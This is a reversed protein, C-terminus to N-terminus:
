DILKSSNQKAQMWELPHKNKKHSYMNGSSNMEIGCFDCSYLKQGTHSARHEQLSRNLKFLKKCIECEFTEGHVRKKHMSLSKRSPYVKHCIDCSEEKSQHQQMIHKRLDRKRKIWTHCIDCQAGDERKLETHVVKHSNFAGQTKFEKGCVDCMLQKKGSHMEAIHAKLRYTNIISKKCIPCEAQEHYRHHARLMKETHFSRTCKKCKFTKEESSIHKFSYHVDMTRKNPFGKGCGDCKYPKLHTNIHYLMQHRHIFNKNCCQLTARTKHIEKAHINLQKLNEFSEPCTNCNLTFFEKILRDENSAEVLEDEISLPLEEKIENKIKEATLPDECMEVEVFTTGSNDNDSLEEKKVVPYFETLLSESCIGSRIQLILQEQNCRVTEIFTYFKNIMECCEPCVESPLQESDVFTFNSVATLRAGFTEDNITIASPKGSELCLRCM